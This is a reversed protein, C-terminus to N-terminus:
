DTVKRDPYKTKIINELQYHAANVDPGICGYTQIKKDKDQKHYEITCKSQGIQFEKKMIIPVYCLGAKYSIEMAKIGNVCLNYFKPTKDTCQREITDKQPDYYGLTGVGNYSAPPCYYSEALVTGPQMLLGFVFFVVMFKIIRKM